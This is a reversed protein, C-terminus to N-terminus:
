RAVQSVHENVPTATVELQMQGKTTVDDSSFVVTPRGIPVIVNSSWKTQRILPHLSATAASSIEAGVFLALDTGIEKAGRCDINVGVDVYTFQTNDSGSVGTTVPVKNGTRIVSTGADTSVTTSYRRANIVKGGDLEKVVLDLHFYKPQEATAKAGEGQALCIAATLPVLGLTVALKTKNPM